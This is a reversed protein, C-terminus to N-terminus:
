KQGDTRRMINLSYLVRKWHKLLKKQDVGVAEEMELLDRYDNINAM